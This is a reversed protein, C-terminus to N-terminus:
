LKLFTKVKSCDDIYIIEFKRNDTTLQNTISLIEKNLNEIHDQENFLPVILSYNM